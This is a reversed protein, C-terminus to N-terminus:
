REYSVLEAGDSENVAFEMKRCQVCQRQLCKEQLHGACCISRMLKDPDNEKIMNLNYLKKVVIEMNAHIKCACTDRSTVSPFVIWFPRFKCFLSYSLHKYKANEKVFHAYLNKMTNNLYRKQKKVKKKTITEKKRATMRSSEDLELFHKIDRRLSNIETKM